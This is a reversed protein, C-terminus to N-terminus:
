SLIVEFRCDGQHSTFREFESATLFVFEGVINTLLVEHDATRRFRFPLFSYQKKGHFVIPNERSVTM